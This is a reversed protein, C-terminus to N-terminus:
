EADDPPDFLGRQGGGRAAELAEAVSALGADRWDQRLECGYSSRGLIAAQRPVTCIGAFPDFVTDGPDSFLRILRDVLGIQLPCIHRTDEEKRAARVNLTDTEKIDGWCGEAWAIWDDRSAQGEAVVPRPNEGPALFKLVYDGLAGRANARDSELGAFQLQRSRTRIAQAQPNKRILWDYEYSFGAREALRILFGRFDALGRRGTRASRPLQMCHVLAARGPVMVRALGRFFWGFAVKSEAGLADANGLDAESDTYAYMAPFPVSTVCLDMSEPEMDRLMHPICDGLHVAHTTAAAKTRGADSGARVAM